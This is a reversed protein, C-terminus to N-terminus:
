RASRSARRTSGPRPPSCRQTAVARAAAKKLAASYIGVGLPKGLILADGALAGRNRKIHEPDVLGIAVLGYIPEVSDITHGGAVPVGAKACLAEGGDLIRRITDVPLRDVPMGVVALAFLRRAAWPTSTPCRTPRPSPASTSRTM